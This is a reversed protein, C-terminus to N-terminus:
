RKVKGLWWVGGAGVALAVVGVLVIWWWAIGNPRTDAFVGQATTTTTVAQTTNAGEEAATTTSLTTTSATSETANATTTQPVATTSTTAAATTATITTAVAKVTTTSTNVTTAPKQEGCVRCVGDGGYSHEADAKRADGCGNCVTDCAGDYTHDSTKPRTWECANCSVDCDGDYAHEDRCINYHWRVSALNTNYTDFEISRQDAESGSYWVDMLSDCANFAAKEIRKVTRPLSVELLSQCMQFAGASVSEVGDPIRIRKVKECGLFAQAGITRVGNGITVDTLNGCTYFAKDGITTVSDPIAVTTLGRCAIFAGEGITKLSDPLKVSTLTGNYYFAEKGITTVGDPIVYATEKKGSPYAYLATKDKSFLVGDVVCLHPNAAAVEFTKLPSGFTIAEVTEVTSSLSVKELNRCSEFGVSLRKVGEPVILETLRYAYFSVDISVVPYDAVTDPLTLPGASGPLGEGNYFRTISAEGNTVTYEWGNWSSPATAGVSLDLSPNSVVGFLMMVIIVYVMLRKM